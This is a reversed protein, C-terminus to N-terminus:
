KENIFHIPGFLKTVDYIWEVEGMNNEAFIVLLAKKCEPLNRLLTLHKTWSTASGIFQSLHIMDDKETFAFSKMECDNGNPIAMIFVTEFPTPQAYADVIRVLGNINKLHRSTEELIEHHLFISDHLISFREM